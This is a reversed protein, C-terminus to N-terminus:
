SKLLMADARMASVLFSFAHFPTEQRWVCELGRQFKATVETRLGEDPVRALTMGVVEEGIGTQSFVVFWFHQPGNDGLFVFIPLM